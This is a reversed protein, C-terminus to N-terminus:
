TKPKASFANNWTLKPKRPILMLDNRYAYASQSFHPTHRTHIPHIGQTYPTYAKHTHPTHRATHIPHIGQLTYPTYAKCHTHPTHRATHIPHIGQLTYPTYAKCHTHPTHRATHKHAHTEQSLIVSIYARRQAM